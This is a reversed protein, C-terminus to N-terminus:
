ARAYTSRKQAVQLVRRSGTTKGTGAPGIGFVLDHKKIAYIYERQGLTKVRISKGKANKTIEEEYLEEFHDLMGRKSLDIAYVVDRESINVGKRIVVLLTNLVEEMLQVDQMDGSVSVTEGRTVISIDLTEEMVKINKDGIGFLALAENPNQLQIDINKLRETM